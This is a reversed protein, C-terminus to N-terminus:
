LQSSKRGMRTGNSQRLCINLSRVKTAVSVSLFHVFCINKDRVNKVQDILGYRGLDDLEETTGEDLGGPYVDRSADSLSIALAVQSTRSVAKGM